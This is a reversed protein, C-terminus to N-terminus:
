QEIWDLTREDYTACCDLCTLVGKMETRNTHRCELDDYPRNRKQEFIGDNGSMFSAGPTCQIATFGDGVIFICAMIEGGQM